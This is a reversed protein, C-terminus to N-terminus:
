QCIATDNYIDRDTITAKMAVLPSQLSASGRYAGGDCLATIRRDPGQIDLTYISGQTRVAGTGSFQAGPVCFRYAGSFSNWLLVIAPNSDDQLRVNFVNVLFACSSQNGSTDTATCTVTTGAAFCSGSPPVCAYTVGTRRVGVVLDHPLGDATIYTHFQGDKYRTLGGDETGAWLTGDRDEYLQLFRNSRIGPSNAKNFVTYGAGNYRVLGDFTTFWLYGDRTQLISHVSNQPLGSDTNLVDFRYQAMAVSAAGCWCLVCATLIIDGLRKLRFRM